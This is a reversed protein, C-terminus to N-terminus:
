KLLLVIIKIEIINTLVFSVYTLLDTLWDTEEQDQSISFMEPSRKIETLIDKWAAADSNVLEVHVHTCSELTIVTSVRWQDNQLFIM